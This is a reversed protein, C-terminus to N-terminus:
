FYLCFVLRPRSYLIPMPTSHLKDDLEESEYPHKLNSNLSLDNCVIVSKSRFSWDAQTVM